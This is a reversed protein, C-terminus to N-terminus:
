VLEDVVDNVPELATGYESSPHWAVFTFIDHGAKAQFQAAITLPLKNGQSTIFDVQVDVKNQEAWEDIMRKLAANAGPAWHDWV